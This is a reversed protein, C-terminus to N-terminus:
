PPPAVRAGPRAAMLAFTKQGRGNSRTNGVIRDTGITQLRFVELWYRLYSRMGARSLERLQQGTADPRVRRLNAELQQVGRGQRRWAIEAILMFTSRAWAAPM